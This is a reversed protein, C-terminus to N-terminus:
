LTIIELEYLVPVPVLPVLTGPLRVELCVVRTTLPGRTTAAPIRRALM